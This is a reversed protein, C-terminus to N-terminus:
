RTRKILKGYNKYIWKLQKTSAFTIYLYSYVFYITIKLM